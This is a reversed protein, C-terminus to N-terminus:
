ESYQFANNRLTDESDEKEGARRPCPLKSSKSTCSNRKTIKRALNEKLVYSVSWFRM